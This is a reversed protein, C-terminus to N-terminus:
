LRKYWNKDEAQTFGNSAAFKDYVSLARDIPLHINGDNDPKTWLNNHGSRIGIHSLSQEKALSTSLELFFEKWHIPMLARTHKKSVIKFYKVIEVRIGQMQYIMLSDNRTMYSAAAIPVDDHFLGIGIPADLYLSIWEHNKKEGSYLDDLSRPYDKQTNLPHISYRSITDNSFEQKWHKSLLGKIDKKCFGDNVYTILSYLDIINRTDNDFHLQWESLRSKQMRKPDCVNLSSLEKLPKERGYPFHIYTWIASEEGFKDIIFKIPIHGLLLALSSKHPHADLYMSDSSEIDVTSKLAEDLSPVDWLIKKKFRPNHEYVYRAWTAINNM